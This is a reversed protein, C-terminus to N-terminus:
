CGVALWIVGPVFVVHSPPRSSRVRARISSAKLQISDLQFGLENLLATFQSLAAHDPPLVQRPRGQPSTSSLLHISYTAGSRFVGASSPRAVSLTGSFFRRNGPSERGAMVHGNKGAGNEPPSRQKRM